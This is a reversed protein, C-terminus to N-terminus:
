RWRSIVMRIKNEMGLLFVDIDSSENQESQNPAEIHRVRFKLGADV